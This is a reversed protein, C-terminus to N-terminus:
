YALCLVYRGCGSSLLSGPDSAHELVYVHLRGLRCGQPNVALRGYVDRVARSRCLPSFEYIQTMVIQRVLRFVMAM